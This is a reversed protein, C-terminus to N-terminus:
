AAPDGQGAFGAGIKPDAGAGLDIEDLIGVSFDHEFGLLSM